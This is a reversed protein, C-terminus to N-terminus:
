DGCVGCRRCVSPDCPITTKEQFSKQYEGWLYDQRISHDIINWPLYNDKGYQHVAYFEPLLGEKRMAQQWPIGKQAMAALVTALRRDGRALVAQFLVNEPKDHNMRVNAEQRLGKKLFAIKMKLSKVAKAASGNTDNELHEGGFPHFQFPTWPKPAFCNVSLTIECLRGRARGIPLMRERVKKILDLMEQLDDYTETPLGIMLYLKLKYLGVGALREAAVLIDEETLNKNIVRRLRESAGDPAIAVSKLGSSGLLELLPGSIRDARLSSFSLSCGSDLLYSSLTELEDQNAMEMGLLGIRRVNESREELGKVVADADWLRPPRYIFGATCFRCGRSCGRGLETVYLSSFEAAPSLLESHAAKKVTPVVVKAIRRAVGEAPFSEILRGTGDDYAPTHLEPVYAGAIEKQIRLLLESRSVGDLHEILFPLFFPLIGEAEGLLFLDTFPALPEPNMFTAVGGGIVMPNVPSILEDNRDEAFLSIGGALLLRAINVYDHEFSISYFLLPFEGLPRGSEFSRLPSRSDEPLFFRECVLDDYGNLLSYVLQFGLSSVGVGYKNPYLLAVPIRGTWKKLYTGSERDLLSAYEAGRKKQRGRSL